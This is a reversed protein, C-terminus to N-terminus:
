NRRTRTAKWIGNIKELIAISNGSRDVINIRNLHRNADVNNETIHRALDNFLDGQVQYIPQGTPATGIIRPTGCRLSQATRDCASRYPGFDLRAISLSFNLNAPVGPRRRRAFSESYKKLDALRRKIPEICDGLLLSFCSAAKDLM